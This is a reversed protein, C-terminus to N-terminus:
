WLRDGWHQQAQQQYWRWKRWERNQRARLAAEVPPRFYQLFQLGTQLEPDETQAIIRLIRHARSYTRRPDDDAEWLRQLGWLVTHRRADPNERLIRVLLDMLQQCQQESLSQLSKVLRHICWRREDSHSSLSFIEELRGLTAEAVDARVFPLGEEACRWLLVNAADAM